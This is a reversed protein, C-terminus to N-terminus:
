QQELQSLEALVARESDLKQLQEPTLTQSSQKDKLQQIQKLKKQLNRIKKATDTAESTSDAAGSPQDQSAEAISM